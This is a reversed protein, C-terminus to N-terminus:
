RKKAEFHAIGNAVQAAGRPDDGYPPSGDWRGWEDRTLGSAQQSWGAVRLLLEAPMGAARGTAGYNFSSFDLYESEPARILDAATEYIVRVGLAQDDKVFVAEDPLEATRVSLGEGARSALILPQRGLFVATAAQKTGRVVFVITSYEVTAGCNRYVVRGEVGDLLPQTEGAPEDSCSGIVVPDRDGRTLLLESGSPSEQLVLHEGGASRTEITPPEALAIIPVMLATAAFATPARDLRRM